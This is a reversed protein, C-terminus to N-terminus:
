QGFRKRLADYLTVACDRIARRVRAAYSAEQDAVMIPVPNPNLVSGLRSNAAEIDTLIGSISANMLQQAIADRRLITRAINCVDLWATAITKAKEEDLYLPIQPLPRGVGPIFSSDSTQVAYIKAM